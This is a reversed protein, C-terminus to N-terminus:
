TLEETWFKAPDAYMWQTGVGDDTLNIPDLSSATAKLKLDAATESLSAVVYLVADSLPSPLKSNDNAAFSVRDGVSVILSDGDYSRIYDTSSNAFVRQPARLTFAEYTLTIAFKAAVSSPLVPVLAGWSAFDDAFVPGAFEGDLESGWHDFAELSNTAADFVASEVASLYLVGQNVAWQSMQEIFPPTIVPLVTLVVQPDVTGWGRRFTEHAQGVNNLDGAFFAFDEGTGVTQRTWGLAEGPRYGQPHVTELPAIEFSPNTIM